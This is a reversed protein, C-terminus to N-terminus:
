RSALGEQEIHQIVRIFAEMTRPTAVSQVEKHQGFYDWLFESAKQSSETASKKPTPTNTHTIYVRHGKYITHNTSQAPAMQVVTSPERIRKAIEAQLGAEKILYVYLSTLAADGQIKQIIKDHYKLWKTQLVINKSNQIQKQAQAVQSSTEHITKLGLFRLGFREAELIDEERPKFLVPVIANDPLHRAFYADRTLTSFEKSLTSYLLTENTNGSYFVKSHGMMMDMRRTLGGLTDVQGSTKVVQLATDNVIISKLFFSMFWEYTVSKEQIRVSAEGIMQDHVKEFLEILERKKAYGPSGVLSKALIAEAEGYRIELRKLLVILQEAFFEIHDKSPNATRIEKLVGEKLALMSLEANQFTNQSFRQKGEFHKELSEISSSEFLNSCSPGSAYGNSAFLVIGSAIGLVAVFHCFLSRKFM